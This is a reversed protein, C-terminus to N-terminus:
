GLTLTGKCRSWNKCNIWAELSQRLTESVIPPETISTPLTNLIRITRTYFHYKFTDSHLTQLYIYRNNDRTSTQVCPPFPINLKNHHIKHFILIDRAARRNQLTTWKLKNQILHTISTNYSYNQLVFRAARKQVSEIKNINTQTYPAWASSAYELHPRIIAKYATEKVNPPCMNLSRRCLNLLKTAKKTTEAIHTNFTLKNDLHVGLYKDSVILELPVLSSFKYQLTTNALDSINQNMPCDQHEVPSAMSYDFNIVNKTKRTIRLTKCKKINFNMQWKIAWNQLHFIDKQLTVADSPTDISRYLASDDAFLRIKSSLHTM